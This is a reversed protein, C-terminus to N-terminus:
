TGCCIGSLYTTKGGASYEPLDEEKNIFEDSSLNLEIKDPKVSNMYISYVVKAVNQIRKKWSTMSVIIRKGNVM